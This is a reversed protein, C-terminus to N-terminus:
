LCVGVCRFDWCFRNAAYSVWFAVAAVGPDSVDSIDSVVYCAGVHRFYCQALVPDSITVLDDFINGLAVSIGYFYTLIKLCGLLWLLWALTKSPLSTLM